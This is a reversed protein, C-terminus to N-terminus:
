QHRQGSLKLFSLNIFDLGEEFGYKDISVIYYTKPRDDNNPNSMINLTLDMKSLVGFSEEEALREVKEM